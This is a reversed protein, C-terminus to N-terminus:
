LLLESTMVSELKVFVIVKRRNEVERANKKTITKAKNSYITSEEKQKDYNNIYHPNIQNGFAYADRLKKNISTPLLVSVCHM